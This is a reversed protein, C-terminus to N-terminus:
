SKPRAAYNASLYKIIAAATQDDIPAGYGERMKAVEAKWADPALFSSNMRIYNLTHCISCSTAVTDADPAPKLAVNEQAVASAAFLMAALLLYRFMM